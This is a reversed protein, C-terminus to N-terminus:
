GRSASCGIALVGQEGARELGGVLGVGDGLDGADLEALAVVALVPAVEAADHGGVEVAGAVVEVELVAVDDRRQEALEVLGGLCVGGSTTMQPLPVGFRSNRCTSSM